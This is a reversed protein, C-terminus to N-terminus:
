QRRGSGPPSPPGAAHATSWAGVERAWDTYEEGQHRDLFAALVQAFLAALAEQDAAPLGTVLDGLEAGFVREIEKIRAVGAGTLGLRKNRRDHPDEQRSILGARVLRDVARSAASQSLAVAEAVEAVNLTRRGILRLMMIEPLTLGLETMHRFLPWMGTWWTLRHWYRLLVPLPLTELRARFADPSIEGACAAPSGADGGTLHM